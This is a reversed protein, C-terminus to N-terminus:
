KRGPGATAKPTRKFSWSQNGAINWVRVVGNGFAAALEKGSPAFTVELVLNGPADLKKVLSGEMPNWIKVTLPETIDVNAGSALRTGDPSWALTRVVGDEQLSQLISQNELNWIHIVGSRDGSALFKGDPSFKLSTVDHEHGELSILRSGRSPYWLNVVKRQEQIGQILGVVPANADFALIQQSMANLGGIQHRSEGTEADQLSM